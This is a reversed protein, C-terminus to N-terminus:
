SKATATQEELIAFLEDTLQLHKFEAKLISTLTDQIRPTSIDPLIFNINSAMKKEIEQVAAFYNKYDQDTFM